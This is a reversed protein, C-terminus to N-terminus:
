LKEGFINKYGQGYIETASTFIMFATPDVDKVVEEAKPALGKRMVAMIIEKGTGSYAGKGNIFTAGVNVDKLLRKVIESSKDSIIFVLKAEDSGYLVKDLVVNTTVVAISAYLAIILDKFVIASAAVICIDVATFIASTKIHPYKKRLIRVMIDTGGTTSGKRMIIGISLGVLVGGALAAILKDDTVYEGFWVLANNTSYSTLLVCFFTRLMMKFGLKWFGLLVLPINLMLIISGTEIHTVSNLIIGIGSVGGPALRNPSLFLGIGIGCMLSGITLVCFEKVLKIIREM